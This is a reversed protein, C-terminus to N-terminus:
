REEGSRIAAIIQEMTIDDLQQRWATEAAAFSQSLVRLGRSAAKKRSSFVRGIVGASAFLPEAGEIAEVVMRLTIAAMPRALKYGGSAGRESTIIQAVVLRRMIKTLYPASVQMRENLEINTVAGGEHEALIALVCLAQELSKSLKMTELYLM